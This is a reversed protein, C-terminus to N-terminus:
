EGLTWDCFAHYTNSSTPVAEEFFGEQTYLATDKFMIPAFPVTDCFVKFFDDKGEEGALYSAHLSSLNADYFGGHNLSGSLLRTLDFDAGISVEGYYLTFNGSSLASQYENFPLSRVECTAGLRTLTEAIRKAAALKGSNESNVLISLPEEISLKLNGDYDLAKAIESPFGVARPHMPLTSPAGMLAFDSKAISERDIAMAIARRVAKDSLFPKRSNFGIFHLRTTPVNIIESASMPSLASTGTPDSSLVSVTHTDFEFLLEDSSAVDTLEIVSYLASRASEHERRLTLSSFDDKPVYPGTGTPLFNGRTGEKIIPIDLLAPFRSNDYKLRVIVTSGGKSSISEVASLRSAYYSGPELAARLSYEVDRASLTSGDSFTVNDRIKFTYTNNSYEYDSCLSPEPIFSESLSFLPECILGMLESNIKNSTTYPDASESMALAVGFTSNDVSAVEEANEGSLMTDLPEADCASFTLLMLLIASLLKRM